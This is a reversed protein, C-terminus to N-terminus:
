RFIVRRFERLIWRWKPTNWRETWDASNFEFKLKESLDSPLRSYFRNQEACCIREIQVRADKTYRFGRDSLFGHTAEHVILGARQAVLYDGDWAYNPNLICARFTSWYRGSGLAVEGRGVIWTLHEQIRRYRRPDETKILLLCQEVLNAFMEDDELLCAIKLGNLQAVTVPRLLQDWIWKTLRTPLNM